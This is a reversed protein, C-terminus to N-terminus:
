AEEEGEEEEDGDEEGGAVADGGNKKWEETAKEFEAKLAAAKKEFPAKKAAALAKWKEGALKGVVSGKGTGAEKALADRNESLWIWYANQPKKPCGSAARKEKKAKKDQGAKKAASKEQRRKGKQGGAAEFEEMAKEYAAKREAAKKDFPAKQAASMAKWKEGALKGVASVNGSGAQKALDSRNEGLWIWYANQPKSPEVLDAAM